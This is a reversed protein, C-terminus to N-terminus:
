SHVPRMIKLHTLGGQNICDEALERVRLHFETDTSRADVSSEVPTYQNMPTSNGEYPTDGLNSTTVMVMPENGQWEVGVRLEYESLHLHEATARLLAMFDAVAAEMTTGWFKHPPFIDRSSSEGGLATAYAVSGDHLISGWTEYADGRARPNAAAVWRRLGPRPHLADAENILRLVHYPVFKQGIAFARQAIDHADQRSVSAGLRPVRPRAVAVFWTRDSANGYASMEGYLRDMAQSAERRQEFRSRYATEIQREGMWATDAGNRFPASFQHKQMVLHPNDLSEPVEVVVAKPHDDIYHITAGMVPPQIASLMLQMMTREYHEDFNRISVRGTAKKQTEDVGYIIVGGGSNAMAAVDKPFDSNKLERAEPLQKKWDLDSSEEVGESVAQDILETTLPAPPEGLARHLATFTM